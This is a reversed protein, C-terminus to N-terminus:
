LSGNISYLFSANKSKSFKNIVELVLNNAKKDSSINAIKHINNLILNPEQKPLSFRKILFNSLDKKFTDLDHLNNTKILQYGHSYLSPNDSKIEM